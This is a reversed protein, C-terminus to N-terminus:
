FAQYIIAADVKQSLVANAICGFVLLAFFAARMYPTYAGFISFSVRERFVTMGMEFLNLVVTVVLIMLLFAAVMGMVGLRATLQLTTAGTNWFCIMCFAFWTYTLGRCVFRYLVNTLLDRYGKKGLKKTVVIQYFKCVSVGLALLLGYVAFIITSGHWIGILFFTVFYSIVGLYADLSPKLGLGMMWKLLPTYVYDRLWFSLSMHWRSWLEIFDLSAFPDNFNEPYKKGFLVGIGIVIDTYGSFNFYLFVPYLGFSALAPGLGHAVSNALSLRGTAQTQWRSVITALVLVKFFGITIREIGASIDSLTLPTPPRTFEQYRDIPGAIMTPFNMAFNFYSVPGARAISENYRADIIMGLVRFFAYSLGVTLYAFSLFHIMSLFWYKKLWCFILVTGVVFVILSANGRTYRASCVAIYGLLLFCAFPLLAHPSRTFMAIFALNFGLMVLKRWTVNSWVGHLIAAAIAFVLFTLSSASM